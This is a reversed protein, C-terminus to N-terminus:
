TELMPLCIRVVLVVQSALEQYPRINSLIRNRACLLHETPFHKRCPEEEDVLGKKPSTEKRVLLSTAGPKRRPM